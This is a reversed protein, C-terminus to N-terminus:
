RERIIRGSSDAKRTPVTKLNPYLKFLQRTFSCQSIPKYGNSVSWRWYIEYLYTTSMGIWDKYWSADCFEKVSEDTAVIQVAEEVTFGRRLRDRLSAGSIGSMESLENITYIEGKYELQKMTFVGSNSRDCNDHQQDSVM